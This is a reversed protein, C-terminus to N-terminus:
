PNLPVFGAKEILKQGETTLLLNAYAKGAQEQINGNEKVIVYLQRTIPYDENQFADFNLRNRYRPCDDPSIYPDFFKDSTRGIPLPKITCQRVIEPASAYYIGGPDSAVQRLGTTTDPSFKVEPSFSSKIVKDVFFEVTGGDEIRRSYPTIVLDPGGVQSWNTITGTYIGTLQELTLGEIALDPNVAIAIGEVAVPIQKLYYGSQEAELKEKEKIQRSSQSFDLENDLLMRIGTGSGPTRGSGIIPDKYIIQFNPLSNIIQSDVERRIPAWSTSGGYLFGGQPIDPVQSFNALSQQPTPSKDRTLFWYFFTFLIGGILLSVILIPLTENKRSMNTYKPDNRKSESTVVVAERPLGCEICINGYNLFSKHKFGKAQGQYQPNKLQGDCTWEKSYSM